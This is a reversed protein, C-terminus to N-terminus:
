AGDDAGLAVVGLPTRRLFVVHPWARSGPISSLIRALRPQTLLLSVGAQELAQRVEGLAWGPHLSVVAGGAKLVGLLCVLQDISRPLWVGVPTGKGVGESRLEHALRNSLANLEGYTLSDDKCVAAVGGPAAKSQEEILEHVGIEERVKVWTHSWDRTVLERERRPLLPLHGLSASPTALGGSLLTQLHQTFRRVTERDIADPRFDVSGELGSPGSRIDVVLHFPGPGRRRELVTVEVGEFEPLMWGRGEFRCLIRPLLGPLPVPDGLGSRLVEQYSLDRHRYAQTMVAGTIDALERFGPEEAWRIRLPLPSSFPGVVGQTGGVGGTVAETAVVFDKGSTYRHLVAILGAFVVTSPSVGTELSFARIGDALPADELFRVPPVMAPESPGSRRFGPLFVAQPSGALQGHWWAQLHARAVGSTRRTQSALLASYPIEIRPLWFPQGAASAAYHESIEAFIVELSAVDAILQHIVVVLLGEDERRKIWLARWLPSKRRAFPRTFAGDILERELRERDCPIATSLDVATWPLDMEPAVLFVPSEQHLGVTSRLLEQRRQLEAFAHRLYEPNLGGRCRMVAGLHASCPAAPLRELEWLAAQDPTMRLVGGPGAQVDRILRALGDTLRPTHDGSSDKSGFSM